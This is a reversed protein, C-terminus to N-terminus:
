IHLSPFLSIAVVALTSDSNDSIPFFAQELETGQM